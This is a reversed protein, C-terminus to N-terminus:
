QAVANGQAADLLVQLLDLAHYVDYSWLGEIVHEEEICSVALITLAASYQFTSHQPTSCQVTRLIRTM